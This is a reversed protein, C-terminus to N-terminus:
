LRKLSHTDQVLCIQCIRLLNVLRHRLVDMLASIRLFYKLPLSSTVVNTNMSKKLTHMMCASMLSAQSRKTLINSGAICALTSVGIVIPPLYVPILTKVKDKTSLEEDNEARKQALLESAKVTAHATAVATVVVGTMGIVTLITSSNKRLFMKANM